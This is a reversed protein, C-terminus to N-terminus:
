ISMAKLGFKEIPKLKQGDSEPKRNIGLLRPVSPGYIDADLLGVKMGLKSLGLALNVAVTSKGVGGKGSAVAIVAQVGTIGSQRMKQQPAATQPPAARTEQHATLVATVSLVGPLKAVADEAAKRLPEASRGREPPVEIAFGVNRERIVLGQVMGASVVDRGSAPDTVQALAKLVDDKTAAM